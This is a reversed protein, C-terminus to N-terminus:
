DHRVEKLQERLSRRARHLRSKVTGLDLELAAAIEEYEFGHYERMLFAARFEPSLAAVADAIAKAIRERRLNADARGAGPIAERTTELPETKPRRRQLENIALRSAIKFLWTPFSASGKLDFRPLAKLARIFTEQALDEVLADLGVPGLMRRLLAGIPRQYRRIVLRQAAAEGAGARTLVVDTVDDGRATTRASPVTLIAEM